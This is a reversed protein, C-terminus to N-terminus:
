HLTSTTELRNGSHAIYLKYLEFNMMCAEHPVNSRDFNRKNQVNCQMACQASHVTCQASPVVFLM